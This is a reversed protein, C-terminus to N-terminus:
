VFVGATFEFSPGVTTGDGRGSPIAMLAQARYKLEYMIPVAGLLADQKGNFAKELEGLLAMYRVNFDVMLQHIEPQGAYESVKPNPSMPYRADWDVVLTAGTPPQHPSDSPMYRRGTRIENFRFYHALEDKQGFQTDNDYLTGDFGEGQETIEEIAQLATTLDTVQIPKGGAGYYFRSGDVQKGQFWKIKGQQELTQFGDAIAAYFQAITAYDGGQPKAGLKAPKEIQLFTDIAATGFPLLGVVFKQDSHPLYGPYSPVFKDHTLDPQGGIANLLNAALVMHLMEEMVVGRILASASVNRGDPISYLACLYPPITAHELEIATQLHDKLDDVSDITM